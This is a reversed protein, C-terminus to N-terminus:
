SWDIHRIRAIVDIIYSSFAIFNEYILIDIIIFQKSHSRESKDILVSIFPAAFPTKHTSRRFWNQCIRTANEPRRIQENILSPSFGRFHFGAFDVTDPSMQLVPWPSITTRVTDFPSLFHCLFPPVVTKRGGEKPSRSNEEVKWLHPPPLSDISMCIRRCVCM